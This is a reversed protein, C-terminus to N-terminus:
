LQSMNWDRSYCSSMVKHCKRDTSQKWCAALRPRLSCAASGVKVGFEATPIKKRLTQSRSSQLKVKIVDCAALFCGDTARARTVPTLWLFLESMMLQKCFLSPSSKTM